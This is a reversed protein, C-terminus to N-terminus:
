PLVLPIVESSDRAVLQMVKTGWKLVDRDGPFHSMTESVMNIIAEATDEQEDYEMRDWELEHQILESLVEIGAICVTRFRITSIMGLLENIKERLEM